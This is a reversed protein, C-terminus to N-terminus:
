GAPDGRAEARAKRLDKIRQFFYASGDGYERRLATLRAALGAHHHGSFESLSDILQRAAEPVLAARRILDGDLRHAFALLEQVHRDAEARDPEPGSFPPLGVTGFFSLVQANLRAASFDGEGAQEVGYGLRRLLPATAREIEPLLAQVEPRDSGDGVKGARNVLQPDGPFRARFAAEAARAKDFSSQDLAARIAEDSGGLDFRELVRRLTAEADRKYDEFRVIHVDPQDLWAGVFLAWHAASDLLTLPNPFRCFEAFTLQPAQRRYMSYIADRPDRVILIVPRGDPQRSAFDQVYDIEVDDRFAFSQQRGLSPLFKVLMAAKPNLVHRGDARIWIHDAPLPPTSGRWVNDVFPKHGIKIGLELFCNLLWSGGSPEVPSAFLIRKEPM